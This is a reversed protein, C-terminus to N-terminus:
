KGAGEKKKGRPPSGKRFGQRHQEFLPQGKSICRTEDTAGVAPAARGVLQEDDEDDDEDDWFRGPCVVAVCSFIM